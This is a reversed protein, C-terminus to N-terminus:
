RTVMPFSAILVLVVGVFTFAAMPMPTRRSIRKTALLAISVVAGVCSGVCIAELGRMPAFALGVVTWSLVDGFGFGRGRTVAYLALALGGLVASGVLAEFFAGEAVRFGLVVFAGAAAVPLYVRRARLDTWACVGAFALVAAASPTAQRFLALLAVVALPIFSVRGSALGDGLQSARWFALVALVLVVALTIM